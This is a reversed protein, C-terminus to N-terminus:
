EYPKKRFRACAGLLRRQAWRIAPTRRANPLGTGCQTGRKLRQRFSKQAQRFGSEEFTKEDVSRAAEAARALGGRSQRTSSASVSWRASPSRRGRRFPSSCPRYSLSTKWKRKDEQIRRAISAVKRRLWRDLPWRNKGAMKQKDKGVSQKKMGATQKKRGVRKTRCSAARRRVRRRRQNAQRPRQRSIVSSQGLFALAAEKPPAFPHRTMGRRLPTKGM